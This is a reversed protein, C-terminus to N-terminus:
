SPLSHLLREYVPIARMGVVYAAGALVVLGFLLCSIALRMVKSRQKRAKLHPNLCDIVLEAHLNKRMDHAKLEAGILIGALTFVIAQVIDFYHFVAHALVFYTGSTM